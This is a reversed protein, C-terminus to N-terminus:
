SCLDTMLIFHAPIQLISVPMIQVNYTSNFTESIFVCLAIGRLSLPDESSSISVESSAEAKQKRM